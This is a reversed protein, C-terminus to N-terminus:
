PSCNLVILFHIPLGHFRVGLQFHSELASLQPWSLSYLQDSSCRVSFFPTLSEVHDLSQTTQSSSSQSFPAESLLRFGTDSPPSGQGAPGLTCM